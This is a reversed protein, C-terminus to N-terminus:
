FTRSLKSLISLDYPKMRLARLLYRRAKIRDLAILDKGLTRYFKFLYDKDKAMFEFNNELFLEKGKILNLSMKNVHEKSDHWIVLVENFYYIAYRYAVRALYDGDDWNYMREDFYGVNSIVDKRLMWSSPPAILERLPYFKDKVPNYIFGSQKKQIFDHDEAENYGNVFVLGVKEGYDGLDIYAKLQRAIKDKMWEDDSDLFTIFEGNANRLGTNRAAAPGLNKNHVLYKIRSDNFSKVIGATDDSSYDDVVIVEIEQYSQLLCSKIARAITKARNFTPIIISVLTGM